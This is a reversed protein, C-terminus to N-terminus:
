AASSMPMIVVSAPAGSVTFQLRVMSDKVDVRIFPIMNSSGYKTSKVQDAHSIADLFYTVNIAFEVSEMLSNYDNTSRSLVEISTDGREASSAILRMKGNETPSQATTYSFRTINANDKAFTRLLKCVKVLSHPDVEFSHDPNEFADRIVEYKVFSVDPLLDAVGGGKGVWKAQAEIAKKGPIYEQGCDVKETVDSFDVCDLLHLRYGDASAAQMIAPNYGIHQMSPRENGGAVEDLFALGLKRQREVNYHDCWSGGKPAAPIKSKRIATVKYAKVLEGVNQGVMSAQWFTTKGGREGQWIQLALINGPRTTLGFHLPSELESLALLDNLRPRDLKFSAVAISEDTVDPLEDALYGYLQGNKLAFAQQDIWLISLGNARPMLTVLVMPNASMKVQAILNKNLTALTAADLQM